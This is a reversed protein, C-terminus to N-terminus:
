YHSSRKQSKSLDEQSFYGHQCSSWWSSAFKRFVDAEFRKGVSFEWNRVLKALHVDEELEVLAGPSSIRRNM